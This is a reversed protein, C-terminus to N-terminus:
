HDADRLGGLEVWSGAGTAVARAYIRHAAAVDEIALGLSKFVTIEVPSRRGERAPEDLLLEGIEAVIHDDGIAGEGKPILYDGAENIASERRDVYLRAGAVAATDLERATPLSAGVANVHTGPALWAGHLVPERASTVTCVIDAGAVAAEASAAVVVRPGGAALRESVREAFRTARGSSRSWVRVEDISRVLRIAELHTMAQVGAGLLALARSEPRALLRTAVASVAATRLATISSADLIALLRGREQDFLLVAGQHSDFPTADNGPFVTIVKAGLSAPADLAAPMLAFANRGDSLRVVQRLPLLAGGRALTRLAEAMAEICDAMPLLALVDRHGVILTGARAASATV